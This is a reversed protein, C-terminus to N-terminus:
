RDREEQRETTTMSGVIAAARDLRAVLRPDADNRWRYRYGPFVHARDVLAADTLRRLHHRATRPAVKAADAIEDSTMWVHAGRLTAVIRLEHETARDCTDTATM